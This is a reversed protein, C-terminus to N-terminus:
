TYWQLLQLYLVLISFQHIKISILSMSVLTINFIYASLTHSDGVTSTVAELFIRARLAYTGPGERSQQLKTEVGTLVVAVNFRSFDKPRVTTTPQDAPTLFAIYNHQGSGCSITLEVLLYVM